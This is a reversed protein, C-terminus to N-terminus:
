GEEVEEFDYYEEFSMGIEDEFSAEYDDKMTLYCDDCLKLPSNHSVHTVENFCCLCHKM